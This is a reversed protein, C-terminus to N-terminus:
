YEVEIDFLIVLVIRWEIGVLVVWIGCFFCWVVM